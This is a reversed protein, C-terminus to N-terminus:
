TVLEICSDAWWQRSLRKGRVQFVESLEDCFKKVDVAEDKGGLAAKTAAQQIKLGHEDTGVLFKVEREPEVLRRYRAFIDGLVL